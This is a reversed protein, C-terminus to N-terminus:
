LAEQNLLEDDFDAERAEYLGFEEEMNFLPFIWNFILILYLIFHPLKHMSKWSQIFTHLHHFFANFSQM